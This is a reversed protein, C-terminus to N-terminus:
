QTTGPQDCPQSVSVGQLQEDVSKLWQVIGVDLVVVEDHLTVVNSLGQM